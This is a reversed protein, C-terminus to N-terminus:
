KSQVKGMEERLILDSELEPHDGRIDKYFDRIQDMDKKIDGTPIFSPGTGAQKNVYDVYGLLLPVQAKNAIHYFGSKWHDTKKRTGEPAIAIILDDHTAYYEAIQDVVGHTSRRDISIGGLWRMFNGFPKKFLTHKGMWSVKIRLMFMIALLYMFDWNSTHPACILMFKGAHPLEGKFEWGRAKMFMKGLFYKFQGSKKNKKM